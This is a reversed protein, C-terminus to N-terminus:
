IIKESKNSKTFFLHGFYCGFLGILYALLIFWLVLFFTPINIFISSLLLPSVTILFAKIMSHICTKTNRKKFYSNLSGVLFGCIFPISILHEFAYKTNFYILIYVIFLPLIVSFLNLQWSKIKTNKQMNKSKFNLVKAIYTTSSM